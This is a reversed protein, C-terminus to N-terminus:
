LYSSKQKSRAALKPVLLLLCKGPAFLNPSPQLINDGSTCEVCTPTEDVDYSNATIDSAFSQM